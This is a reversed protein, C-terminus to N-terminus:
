CNIVLWTRTSPHYSIKVPKAIGSDDVICDFTPNINNLHATCQVVKLSTGNIRIYLPQITGNTSFSAIVPITIPIM